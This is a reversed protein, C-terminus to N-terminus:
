PSNPPVKSLVFHSLWEVVGDSSLAEFFEPNGEILKALKEELFIPKKGKIKNKAAEEYLNLANLWVLLEDDFDLLASIKNIQKNIAESYCLSYPKPVSSKKRMDTTYWSKTEIQTTFELLRM